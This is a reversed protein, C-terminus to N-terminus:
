QELFVATIHALGQGQELLRGLRARAQLHGELQGQATGTVVSLARAGFGKAGKDAGSGQGASEVIHGTLQPRNGTVQRDIETAALVLHGQLLAPLEILQPQM